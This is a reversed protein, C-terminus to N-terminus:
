KRSQAESIYRWIRKYHTTINTVIELHTKLQDENFGARILGGFAEELFSSGLGVVGNLDVRVINGTKLAPMLLEERFREGSYPGERKYRAAPTVSFDNALSIM